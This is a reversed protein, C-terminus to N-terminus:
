SSFSDARLPIVMLVHLVSTLPPVPIQASQYTPPSIPPTLSALVILFLEFYENKIQMIKVMMVM